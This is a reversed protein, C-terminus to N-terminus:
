RQGNQRLRRIVAAAVATRYAAYPLLSRDAGGRRRLLAGAGVGSALAAAAGAALAPWESREAARLERAKLALAGATVPLGAAESLARAERPAFGRLRAAARAAGSRSVGPVLALAQAAGIALADAARADGRRREGRRAEAAVMAASGALLGAAITAPTGLRREIQAQGLAGAVAAPACALLAVAPPSGRLERRASLLVAAVAGGHLAVEFRKRAGADIEEHRWDCFWALLTTHGSSSIPLLEAPGHLLGLAVAQAVSM